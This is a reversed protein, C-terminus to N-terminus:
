LFLDRTYVKWSSCFEKIPTWGNSHFIILFFYFYFLLPSYSVLNKFDRHCDRVYIRYWWALIHMYIYLFYFFTLRRVISCFIFCKVLVCHRSLLWDNKKIYLMEKQQRQACLLLAFSKVLAFPKLFSYKSITYSLFFYFFFIQSVPQHSADVYRLGFYATELLNPGLHQYVVNLVDQGTTTAKIVLPMPSFSLFFFM